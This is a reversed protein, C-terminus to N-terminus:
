TDGNGDGNHNVLYEDPLEQILSHLYLWLDESTRIGTLRCIRNVMPEEVDENVTACQIADALAASIRWRLVRQRGLGNKKFRQYNALVTAQGLGIINEQSCGSEKAWRIARRKYSAVDADENDLVAQVTAEWAERAAKTLRERATV